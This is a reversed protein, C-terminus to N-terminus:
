TSPNLTSGFTHPAPHSGLRLLHGTHLACVLPQAQESRLDMGM